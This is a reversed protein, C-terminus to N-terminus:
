VHLQALWLMHSHWELALWVYTILWLMHIFNELGFQLPITYSAIYHICTYM